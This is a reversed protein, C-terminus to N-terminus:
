YGAKRAEDHMKALGMLFTLQQVPTDINHPLLEYGDPLRSNYDEPDLGCAEGPCDLNIWCPKRTWAMFRDLFSMRGLMYNHAIRMSEEIELNRGNDPQESLWPMLSSGLYVNLSGGHQARDTRLLVHLLQPTTSDTPTEYVVGIGTLLANLTASTDYFPQWGIDSNRDRPLDCRWREWGTRKSDESSLVEGFGWSKQSPPIFSTLGVGKELVTILPINPRRLIHRVSEMVRGNVDILLSTNNEGVSLEYAAPIQEVLLGYELM